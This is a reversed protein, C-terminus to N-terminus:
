TVGIARGLAAILGPRGELSPRSAGGIIVKVEGCGESPLEAVASAAARPRALFSFRMSGGRDLPCHRVGPQVLRLHNLLAAAKEIRASSTVRSPFRKLLAREKPPYRMLRYVNIRLLHTGTPFTESAPRPIRWVVQADARLATFGNPLAVVNILLTGPHGPLGYAALENPPIGPGSPGRGYSPRSTGPPLRSCIYALVETRGLPAVWWAHQDVLNPTAPQFAPTALLSDDGAPETASETAGPPLALDGLLTAADARAASKDTPAVEPGVPSMCGSAVTPPDGTSFTPVAAALLVLTTLCVAVSKGRWVARTYAARARDRRILDPRRDRSRSVWCLWSLRGRGAFSAM